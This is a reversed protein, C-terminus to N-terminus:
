KNAGNLKAAIEEAYKMKHDCDAFDGDIGLRVDHTFDDSELFIHEEYVHRKAEEESHYNQRVAKWPGKEMSM